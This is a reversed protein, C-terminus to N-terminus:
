GLATHGLRDASAVLTRCMAADSRRDTRPLPGSGALGAAVTSPATDRALEPNVWELLTAWNRSRWDHLDNRLLGRVIFGGGLQSGLVRDGLEGRVVRDVYEKASM